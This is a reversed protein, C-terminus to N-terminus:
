CDLKWRCYNRKQTYKEYFLMILIAINVEAACASGWKLLGTRDTRNWHRVLFSIAKFRKMQLLVASGTALLVKEKPLIPLWCRCSVIRSVLSLFLIPLA